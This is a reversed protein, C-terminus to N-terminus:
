PERIVLRYAVLRAVDTDPDRALAFIRGGDIAFARWGETFAITALWEGGPRLLHLSAPGRVLDDPSQEWIALMGNSEDRRVDRWRRSFRYLERTHAVQRELESAPIGTNLTAMSQKVEATFRELMTDPTQQPDMPLLIERVGRGLSDLFQLHPTLCSLRVIADGITTLRRCQQPPGEALAVPAALDLTTASGGVHLLRIGGVGSLVVRGSDLPRATFTVGPLRVPDQLAGNSGFREIAVKGGDLVAVAGGLMLIDSPRALEGPGQGKRGWAGVQRGDSARVVHVRSTMRDLVFVTDRAVTLATAEAWVTDAPEVDNGATPAIWMQEVRVRASDLLPAAPNKVVEISGVTDRTGTWELRDSAGGSCAVVLAALSPLALARAPLGAAQRRGQFQRCTQGQPEPVM